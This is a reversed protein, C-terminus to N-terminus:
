AYVYICIYLIYHTVTPTFDCISKRVCLTMIVYLVCSGSSGTIQMIEANEFFDNTKWFLKQIDKRYFFVFQM